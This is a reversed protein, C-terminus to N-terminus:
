SSDDDMEDEDGSLDEIGGEDEDENGGALQGTRAGWLKEVVGVGGEVEKMRVIDRRARRVIEEEAKRITGSVRVVKIVCEVQTDALIGGDRGGRLKLEKVFSLGAWVM